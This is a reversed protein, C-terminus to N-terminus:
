GYSIKWFLKRSLQNRPDPSIPIQCVHVFCFGHMTDLSCCDRFASHLFERNRLIDSSVHLPLWSMRVLTTDELTNKNSTHKEMTTWRLPFDTPSFVVNM